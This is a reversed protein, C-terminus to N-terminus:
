HEGARWHSHFNPQTLPFCAQALPIKYLSYLLSSLEPSHWYIKTEWGTLQLSCLRVSQVMWLAAQDCSFLPLCLEIDLSQMKVWQGRPSRFSIKSFYNELKTISPHLIEEQITRLHIDSFRVSSLDVSTWTIAQHQWAVLECFFFNGVSNRWIRIM